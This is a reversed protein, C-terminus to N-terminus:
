SAYMSWCFSRILVNKVANSCRSFNARLKNVAEYQYQMQRQIDKDDSLEIDLVIGLYKYCSFYKVKIVGLTLLPIATSKAIEAKFM